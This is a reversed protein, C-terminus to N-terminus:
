SGAERTASDESITHTTKKSLFGGSKKKTEKYHYDSETATTLTIDRGANLAIDGTTTVSSAVATIDRGATITTNGGSAIETGQQRVSENIEKKNKSIYSNGEHSAEAVLNVDRGGRIAVNNEAAMGAAQSAVDR